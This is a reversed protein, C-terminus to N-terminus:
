RLNEVTLFGGGCTPCKHDGSAGSMIERKSRRTSSTVSSTDVSDAPSMLLQSPDVNSNSSTDIRVTRAAISPPELLFGAMPSDFLTWDAFQDLTGANNNVMIAALEELSTHQRYGYGNATNYQPDDVRPHGYHQLYPNYGFPVANATRVHSQTPSTGNRTGGAVVEAYSPGGQPQYQAQYTNSTDFPGGITQQQNVHLTPRLPQRHLSEGEPNRYVANYGRTNSPVPPEIRAVQAYTPAPNATPRTPQPVYHPMSPTPPMRSPQNRRM